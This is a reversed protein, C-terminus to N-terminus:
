NCYLILSNVFKFFNQKLYKTNSINLSRRIDPAYYAFCNKKNLPLSFLNLIYMKM